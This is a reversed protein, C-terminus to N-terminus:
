DRNMETSRGFKRRSWCVIFRHFNIIEWDIMVTSCSFKEKVVSGPWAGKKQPIGKPSAYSHQEIFERFFRCVTKYSFGPEETAKGYLSDKTGSGAGRAKNKPGRPHLSVSAKAFSWIAANNGVASRRQRHRKEIFVDGYQHTPSVRFKAIEGYTMLSSGKTDYTM